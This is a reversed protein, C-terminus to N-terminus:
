LIFHLCLGQECSLVSMVSQTQENDSVSTSVAGADARGTGSETSPDLTAFFHFSWSGSRESANGGLSPWLTSRPLAYSSCLYASIDLFGPSAIINTSHGSQRLFIFFTCTDTCICLCM